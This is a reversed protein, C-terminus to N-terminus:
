IGRDYSTQYYENVVQLGLDELEKLYANWDSDKNPDLAGTCFSSRARVMYDMVNAVYVNARDKEEQTWTLLPCRQTLDTNAEQEEFLKYQAAAMATRKAYYEDTEATVQATELEAYVNLTSAIRSWKSTSQENLPDRILKYTAPLGMDSVAGEDPDDWNVGKEGYRIRMSGDWTWLTMLVEFAKDVNDCSETIHTSKMVSTDSRVVNGWNKLPVYQYLVESNPAVCTSLHGLFIGCLATGSTPTVITKMEAASASYVLSTLLKEDLLKKIFKLSERYEDTTFVPYLKGDKGVNYQRANYYIFQNIIWDIAHAGFGSQSGFLPIEDKIGNGNPDKDRFARLVTLLEENNTPAKLNLTDLWEQNIWLQWNMKDVLSTEVCPVCYIGGTDPDTITRLVLDQDYESLENTMRDWFVKAKGEKDAFHDSLDVFYGDKGYRTILQDTLEFGYLIDPLEQRAAITTSIQTAVDIGGAFEQFTLDVNCTEEVWKTLANNEHDLVMANSPVGIVLKVRGEVDYDGKSGGNGGANGGNGGNGGCACLSLVCALALVIALFKKM